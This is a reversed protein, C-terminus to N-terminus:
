PRTERAELRTMRDGLLEAKDRAKSADTAITELSREIANVRYDLLRYGAYGGALIMLVSIVSSVIAVIPQWHRWIDSTRQTM